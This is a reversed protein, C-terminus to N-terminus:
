RGDREDLVEDRRLFVFSKKDDDKTIGFMKMVFM